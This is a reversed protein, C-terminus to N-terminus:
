RTGDTGGSRRRVVRAGGSPLMRLIEDLPLGDQSIRTALTTLEKRVKKATESAKERHPQLVVYAKSLRAIASEPGSVIRGSADLGVALEILNNPVKNKRGLVMFSGHALYEGSPASPSVQPPNVWYADASSLGTKWASSFSSTAQAVERIEEETQERGGKLLFFPSGFLDAHYVTDDKEMHRKVLMTNSKADRGGIAMKGSSTLFWRFKEYWDRDRVQLAKTRLPKDGRVSRAKKAVLEIAQLAEERQSELEKAYSFLKSAAAAGSSKRLEAVLRPSVLPIAESIAEDTENQQLRSLKTAVERVRRSKEALDQAKAGLGRRTAELEKMRRGGQDLEKKQGEALLLPLLVTDALESLTPAETLEALTRPRVAFIEPGDKTAAMTPRPQTRAEQVLGTISDALKGLREASETGENEMVGARELVEVVYKRPLAIRKGLAKGIAGEESIAKELFSESVDAPSLRNQHPPLYTEGTRIRRRPGRVERLALIVRDGEGLVFINGPPMMELVLAIPGAVGSLELRLIRDLDVQEASLVKARLIQRRLKSTFEGTEVRESIRSSIWPGYKPSLVLLTDHSDAGRFRIVQSDDLSYVNTVYSQSLASRIEKALVAIELGSLEVM